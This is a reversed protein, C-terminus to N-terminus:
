VKRRREQERRKGRSSREGLRKIKLTAYIFQSIEVVPIM